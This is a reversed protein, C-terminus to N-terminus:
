KRTLIKEKLNWDRLERKAEELFDKYRDMFESNSRLYLSAVETNAAGRDEPSIEADEVYKKLEKSAESVKDGKIHGLLTKLSM